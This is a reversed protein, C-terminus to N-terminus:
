FQQSLILLATDIQIEQYLLFTERFIIVNGEEKEKSKKQATIMIYLFISTELEITSFVHQNKYFFTDFFNSM